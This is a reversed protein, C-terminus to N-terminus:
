GKNEFICLYNKSDFSQFDGTNFNIVKFGEAYKM